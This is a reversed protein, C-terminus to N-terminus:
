CPQVMYTQAAQSRPSRPPATRSRAMRCASPTLGAMMSTPLTCTSDACRVASPQCGLMAKCLQSLTPESGLPNCATTLMRDVLPHSPQRCIIFSFTSQLSTDCGNFSPFLRGFGFVDEVTATADVDPAGTPSFVDLQNYEYDYGVIDGTPARCLKISTM